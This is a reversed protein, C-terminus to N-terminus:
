NITSYIRILHEKHYRDNGHMSINYNQHCLILKNTTGNFLVNITRKSQLLGDSSTLRNRNWHIGTGNTIEPNIVNGNQTFRRQKRKILHIEIFFHRVENFFIHRFKRGALCYLCFNVIHPLDSLIDQIVSTYFGGKYRRIDENSVEACSRGQLLLRTDNIKTSLFTVTNPINFAILSLTVALLMRTVQASTRRKTAQSTDATISPCPRSQYRYAISPRKKSLISIESTRLSMRDEKPSWDFSMRSVRHLTVAIVINAATILALHFKFTDFLGLILINGPV